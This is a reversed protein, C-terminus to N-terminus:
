DNKGTLKVTQKKDKNIRPNTFLATRLLASWFDRHTVPWCKLEPEKSDWLAEWVAWAARRLKGITEAYTASNEMLLSGVAQADPSLMPKIKEFFKPMNGLHAVVRVSGAIIIEELDGEPRQREQKKRFRLPPRRAQQEEEEKKKAESKEKKAGKKGRKGKPAKAKEIKEVLKDLRDRQEFAEAEKARQSKKVTRTRTRLPSSSNKKPSASKKPSSSNNKKPSSGKKPSLVAFMGGTAIPNRPAPDKPAPRAAHSKTVLVFNQPERFTLGRQRQGHRHKQESAPMPNPTVSVVPHRLAEEELALVQAVVEKRKNTRTRVLDFTVGVRAAEAVRVANWDDPLNVDLAGFCFASWTDHVRKSANILVLTSAGAYHVQVAFQEWHVDSEALSRVLTDKWSLCALRFGGLSPRTEKLKGAHSPRVEETDSKKQFDVREVLYKQFAKRLTSAFVRKEEGDVQIAVTVAYDNCGPM